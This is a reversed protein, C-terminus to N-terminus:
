PNLLDLELILNDITLVLENAVVLLEAMRRLLLSLSPHKVMDVNGITHGLLYTYGCINLTFTLRVVANLLDNLDISMDNSLM